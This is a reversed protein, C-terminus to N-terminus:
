HIKEVITYHGIDSTIYVQTHQINIHMICRGGRRYAVSGKKKKPGGPHTKWNSYECYGKFDYYLCCHIDSNGWAPTKEVLFDHFLPTSLPCFRKWEAGSKFMSSIPRMIGIRCYVYAFLVIPCCTTIKFKAFHKGQCCLRLCLINM